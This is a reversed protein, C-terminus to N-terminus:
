SKTGQVILFEQAEGSVVQLLHSEPGGYKQTEPFVTSMDIENGDADTAWMTYEIGNSIGAADIRKILPMTAFYAWRLFTTFDDACLSYDAVISHGAKDETNLYFTLKLNFKYM